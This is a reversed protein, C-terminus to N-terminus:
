KFGMLLDSTFSTNKREIKSLGASEFWERIEKETYTDGNATGVLMNLAFLTGHYPKTRDESMIFDNIILTGNKSLAGACKNILMKNQEYSNMHIIASLLILDYESKFDISFYSGEVFSFNNILGEAAVYKKTIPIVQPLDLVTAKISPNKKVIEISFAASGGGVDLMTKINSLDIMMAMIKGQNVGRYHMAEIFSETWNHKEETTQERKLSVGTKVSETLNSWSNWLHNTHFLNGMFDPKDKVLYKSALDSNYFKGKVKKLLGMACLANLLRDTARIDTNIKNSIEEAPILHKDIISFINLEIASLLIRSERFANAIERIDDSSKIEKM